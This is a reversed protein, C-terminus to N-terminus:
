EEDDSQSENNSDKRNKADILAGIAMGLSLGIPMYTSINDTAYGIATGISIGLCMGIPLFSGGSQSKNKDSM